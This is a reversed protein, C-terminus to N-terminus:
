CARTELRLCKARRRLGHFWGDLERGYMNGLVEELSEVLIESVKLVVSVAHHPLLHMCSFVLLLQFYFLGPMPTSTM